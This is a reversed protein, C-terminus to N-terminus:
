TAKWSPPLCATGPVAPHKPYLRIKGTRLRQEVTTRLQAHQRAQDAADKGPM